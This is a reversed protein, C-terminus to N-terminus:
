PNYFITMPIYLATYPFYLTINVRQNKVPLKDIMLERYKKKLVWIHYIM